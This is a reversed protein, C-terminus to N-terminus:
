NNVDELIIVAAVVTAGNKSELDTQPPNVEMLKKKKSHERM